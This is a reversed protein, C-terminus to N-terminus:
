LRSATLPPAQGPQLAATPNYVAYPQAVMNGLTGLPAPASPGSAGGKAKAIEDSIRTPWYKANDPTWGGTEAVMQAMYAIDTPGTGPGTPAVGLSKYVGQLQQTIYAPDTLNGSTPTTGNAAKVLSGGGTYNPDVSPIYAPVDPAPLGLMAGLTGLRSRQAAYQGYNGQRAIEQNRYDTEAQQKTFDLTDASSKAQLQAAQNTADVQQQGATKSAGSSIKAAATSAAAAALSAGIIAAGTFLSM